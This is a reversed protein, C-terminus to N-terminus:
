NNDILRWIFERGKASKLQKERMIAEKKTEFHEQHILNWPRYKVTYGKTSYINHSDLRSNLDSTYGVYIKNHERSYLVYVTFM